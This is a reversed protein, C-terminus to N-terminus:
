GWRALIARASPTRPSLSGTSGGAPTASGCSIALSFCGTRSSRGASTAATTTTRPAPFFGPPRNFFSRAALASVRNFEYAAGHFTNVGSKLVVNTVAGGARGFEAAYNSTTVDVTQIAEAPPIYVQLLGTRENDDVGEVLLNNFQRAQGNVETSLSDQSNFCESHDRHARGTGRLLTLLSQCNRNFGLPLDEVQRTEIKQGIDVRDTQLM